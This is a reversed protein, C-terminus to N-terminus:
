NVLWQLDVDILGHYVDQLMQQPFRPYYSEEVVSGLLEVKEGRLPFPHFPLPQYFYQVVNITICYSKGAQLPVAQHMFISQFNETGNLTGNFQQLIQKTNAM